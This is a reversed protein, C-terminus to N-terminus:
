ECGSAGCCACTRCGGDSAVTGGCRPCCGNPPPPEASDHGPLPALELVQRGRCGQRFVTVGKLGLGHAELFIRRVMEPGAAVPLNVTKSVGNDTHAQFAAQMALHASPSIEHATAFVRALGPELGPLSRAQGSASLAALNKQSDLGAQRLRALFRPNLEALEQGELVRRLFALAFFPEIGSSSGLLLSISGTPAITTLTANRLHTLGQQRWVSQGFAPFSGRVRGLEQSAQRAAASIREMIEGGLKVAPPSDYPLDLEALLDALGMVGLGIKRTLRSAQAVRPLPHRNVELVDDLFRVALAAAEELAPWDVQGGRLFRPLNLSGLTCSEYPLLPQEGCPNTAELRGLAPTPNARNIADSFALGPEGAAHASEVLLDFLSGAEVQRVAQGTRPNILPWPRGERLAQMFQDSVLASLNFNQLFGPQRKARIFMEIDPHDMGLMGMNAGRRVGGQKIAETAVDFVHMFSLPGSSVGNTSAVLDGAPRLRSFSFGTGGGSKHILATEKVAQFISDLDDEVPLVFCASLQGLPRGANMLTPSNPLFLGQAMLAFFDEGAQRAAAQGGWAAEAQAVAAAVRRLMQEPTELLRGQSDRALYRKELVLQGHPGFGLMDQTM